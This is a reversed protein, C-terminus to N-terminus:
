FLSPTNTKAPSVKDYSHDLRSVSAVNGAWSSKSSSSRSKSMSYSHCSVVVCIL